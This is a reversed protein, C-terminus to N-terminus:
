FCKGKEAAWPGSFGGTANYLALAKQTNNDANQYYTTWQNLCSQSGITCIQGVPVPRPTFCEPNHALLNIEFLGISYDYTYGSSQTCHTNKVLPDGGSEYKCVCAATTAQSGFYKGMYQASCYGSSPPPIGGGAGGSTLDGFINDHAWNYYDSYETPYQTFIDTLGPGTPNGSVNERWQKYTLYSAIMDPFCEEAFPGIGYDLQCDWTPLSIYGHRPKADAGTKYVDKLWKVFLADNRFRLMHGLEHILIFRDIATNCISQGYLILGSAADAHGFCSGSFPGEFDITINKSQSGLLGWYKGYQKLICMTNFTAQGIQFNYAAGTPNIGYDSILKQKLQAPDIPPTTTCQTGATDGGSSSQTYLLQGNFLKDKAFNFYDPYATDYNPIQDQGSAPSSPNTANQATGPSGGIAYASTSSGLYLFSFFLYFTILFIKRM